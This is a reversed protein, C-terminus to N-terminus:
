FCRFGFDFQEQDSYIHELWERHLYTLSKHKKVTIVISTMNLVSRFDVSVRLM